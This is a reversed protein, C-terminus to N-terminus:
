QRHRHQKDPAIDAVALSRGHAVLIEAGFHLSEAIASFYTAQRYSPLQKLLYITDSILISVGKAKVYKNPSPKRDGHAM